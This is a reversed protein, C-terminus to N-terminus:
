AIQWAPIVYTHGDALKVSIYITPDGATTATPGNTLTLANADPTANGANSLIVQESGGEPVTYLNGDSKAYLISVNGNSDHSPFSPTDIQLFSYFGWNYINTVNTYSRGVKGGISAATDPSEGGVLGAQGVINSLDLAGNTITVSGDIAAGGGNLIILGLPGSGNGLSSIIVGESFCGWAWRSEGSGVGQSVDNGLSYTDDASPLLDQNIATPASLNSLNVNAYSANLPAPYSSYIQSM